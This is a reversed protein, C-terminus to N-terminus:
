HTRRAENVGPVASMKGLLDGLQQFDNVKLTFRLEVRGSADDMRSNVGLIHANAVGIVNTLDKLLWKRDFGRVLVDVQYSQAGKRGWEVPLVREPHRAALHQMEECDQRHVSVGRGQTLYGVILDGAVPQCCRALQTLLNGVGEITFGRDPKPPKASFTPAPRAEAELKPSTVEHLARAVQSPSFDGLAVALYLEEVRQLRLKPLALSLDLQHLALRKLERELLDKGAQLNRAQDLKHFYARVKDRARASALFGSGAMLWDRRPESVKGTLIEIRDGSSPQHSLPVIRGNVKAGQCRHGVETHVHYAFDLVTGGKPLDIVQGQPTLVYVRDEILETSLGALLATEDESEKGDLLQRMWAIKREFEADGSGGEKYRWHAAVGLEAHAHMDHTRIQIELTKGQPGIVATHLSQYNNGKPNAIYDDFESPVPSWLSHAVGLAAYCTAVDDVLVRVARIDYLDSFPVDKRQMKKWISFIHKPRGAVDGRIGANQLAERLRAKAEEIFGERDGRKEDLLSAIRRYTDPQLYRFALDELEWKLQWIGLRNALPAHIDASLQALARRADEPLTTAARMRALQRALLILVVRLDRIIALLLRRLGEAGTKGGREHYIPWVKEAEAQGQLLMSVAASSPLTPVMWNNQACTFFVAAVVTDADAGLRDLLSLTQALERNSDTPEVQMLAWHTLAPPLQCTKGGRQGLWDAVTTIEARSM